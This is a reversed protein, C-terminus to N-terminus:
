QTLAVRPTILGSPSQLGSNSRRAFEGPTQYGLLSHPRSENYDIRWAEPIVRAELLSGFLERNLCEDRLKDHFSEIHGNEWPSGPTIYLTKITAREMWDEIPYAVFEPGNDSRLHEPAGYRAIAAEGAESRGLPWHGPALNSIEGDLNVYLFSGFAYALGEDAQLVPLLTALHWPFLFDDDACVTFFPTEVMDIAMRISDYPPINQERKIYQIRRDALCEALVTAETEDNSGNDIVM